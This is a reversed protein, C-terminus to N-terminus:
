RSRCRVCFQRIQRRGSQSVHHQRRSTISYETPMSVTETLSLTISNEFNYARFSYSTAQNTSVTSTSAPTVPLPRNEEHPTWTFGTRHKSSHSIYNKYFYAHLPDAYIVSHCSMTTKTTLTNSKHHCSTAPEVERQELKIYQSPM